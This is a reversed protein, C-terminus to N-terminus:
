RSPLAVDRMYDQPDKKPTVGPFPEKARRERLTNVALEAAKRVQPSPDNIQIDQLADFQQPAGNEGLWRVANLREDERPARRAVELVKDVESPQGAPVAAGPAGGVGPADAAGPADVTGVRGAMGPQAPASATGGGGPSAPSLSPRATSESSPRVKTMDPRSPVTGAAQSATGARGRPVSESAPTGPRSESVPARVPESEEGGMVVMLGLLMLAGVGGLVTIIGSAKM